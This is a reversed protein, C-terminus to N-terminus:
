VLYTKTLLKIVELSDAHVRFYKNSDAWIIKPQGLEYVRKVTELDKNKLAQGVCAVIINQQGDSLENWEFTQEM